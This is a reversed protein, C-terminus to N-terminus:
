AFTFWLKTTSARRARLSYEMTRKGFGGATRRQFSIAPPRNRTTINAKAKVAAALGVIQFSYHGFVSKLLRDMSKSSIMDPPGGM